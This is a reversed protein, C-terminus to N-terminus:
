CAFNINAQRWTRSLRFRACRFILVAEVLLVSTDDSVSHLICSWQAIVQKMREAHESKLVAISRELAIVRTAAERGEGAMALTQEKEFLARELQEM